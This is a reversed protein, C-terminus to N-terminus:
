QMSSLPIVAMQQELEELEGKFMPYPVQPDKTGKTTGAHEHMAGGKGGESLTTMM